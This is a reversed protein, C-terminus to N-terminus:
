FFSLLVVFYYFLLCIILYLKSSLHSRYFTRQSPLPLSTTHQIRTSWCNMILLMFSPRSGSSSLPSGRTCAAARASIVTALLARSTGNALPRTRSCLRAGATARALTKRTQRTRTEPASKRRRTSDQVTVPRRCRFPWRGSSPQFLDRVTPMQVARATWLNFVNKLKFGLARLLDLWISWFIGVNNLEM